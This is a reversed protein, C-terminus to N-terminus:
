LSVGRTCVSGCGARGRLHARVSEKCEVPEYEGLGSGRVCACEAQLSVRVWWEGIKWVYNNVGRGLVSACLWM